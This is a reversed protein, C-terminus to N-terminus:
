AFLTKMYQYIPKETFNLRKSYDLLKFINNNPVIKFDYPRVTGKLEKIKNIKDKYSLKIGQWPLKKNILFLLNYSLSEIDDRRSSEYGMLVNISCYRITGIIGKNTKFPIHKKDYTIIKKAMGFDILKLKNKQNLDFLINEPKIDRHIFGKKHIFDLIDILQLAYSNLNENITEFSVTHIPKGLLDMVLINGIEHKGYWRANPIGKCNRFYNLINCENKLSIDYDLSKKIAVREGTIKNHGIYIEGFAGNGLKKGIIYNNIQNNM